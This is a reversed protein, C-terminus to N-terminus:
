LVNIVHNDMIQLTHGVNYEIGNNIISISCNLDFTSSEGEGTNNRYEVTSVCRDFTRSYLEELASSVAECLRDPQTGYDQILYPLSIVNGKFLTTQSYESAIFWDFLKNIIDETTSIWGQSSLTPIKKSVRGTKM